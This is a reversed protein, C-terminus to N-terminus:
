LLRELNMLPLLTFENGGFDVQVGPLRVGTELQVMGKPIDSV